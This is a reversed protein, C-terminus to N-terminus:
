QLYKSVDITLNFLIWWLYGGNEFVTQEFIDPKTRHNEWEFRWNCDNVDTKGMGM